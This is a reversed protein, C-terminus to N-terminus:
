KVVWANLFRALDEITNKASLEALDNRQILIISHEFLPAKQKKLRVETLKGQLLSDRAVLHPMLGIGLGEEAFSKVTELNDCIISSTINNSKCLKKIVDENYTSSPFSILKDVFEKSGGPRSYLGFSDNYLVTKSVNKAKYNKSDIIVGIELQNGKVRKFIESSRSTELSIDLKPATSKMFKLFSPFFYRAISDYTGIKISGEPPVINSRIAKETQHSIKLIEEAAEYLKVGANTMKVGQPTRVLLATDLDEELQKVVRSLQPQTIRIAQSAGLFSGSDIVAKFYSLKNLHDKLM